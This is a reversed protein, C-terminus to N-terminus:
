LVKYREWDNLVNEISGDDYKVILRLSGKTTKKAIVVCLKSDYKLRDGIMAEKVLTPFKRKRQYNKPPASKSNTPVKVIDKGNNIVVDLVGNTYEVYLKSSNANVIIKKVTCFKHNIIIDDGVKIGEYERVEIQTKKEKKLEQTKNAGISQPLIHNPPSTVKCHVDFESVEEKNGKDTKLTYTYIGLKEKKISIIKGFHNSDILQVYDGIKYTERPIDIQRNSSERFKKIAEEKIQRIRERTLGLKEAISLLSEEPTDIGFFKKIVIREIKSSKKLLKLIDNKDSENQIYKEIANTEGEFVDMDEFFLIMDKLDDPLKNLNDILKYDIDDISIDNISPEYGNEQEFKEKFYRVKRFVAFQNLPLRVMYPISAMAFSISQLIWSKAYNSFSSYQTYDFREVAKVLGVNGEQIIDELPIGKRCYLLAINAVLRQQSMIILVFAKKDGNRYRKFLEITEDNTCIHYKSIQHLYSRLSDCLEVELFKRINFKQPTKISSILTEKTEKPEEIGIAGEKAFWLSSSDQYWFPINDTSFLIDAVYYRDLDLEKAIDKIKLGNSHLLLIYIKKVEEM